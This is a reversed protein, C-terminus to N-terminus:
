TVNIGARRPGYRNGSWDVTLIGPLMKKLMQQVGRLVGVNDARSGFIMVVRLSSKIERLAGRMCLCIRILSQGAEFLSVSFQM